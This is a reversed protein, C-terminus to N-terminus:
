KRRSNLTTHWGLRHKAFNHTKVQVRNVLLKQPATNSGCPERYSAVVSTTAGNKWVGTRGIGFPHVGTLQDVKQGAVSRIAAIVVIASGGALNFM